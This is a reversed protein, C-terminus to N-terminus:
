PNDPAPLEVLDHISRNPPQASPAPNARTWKALDSTIEPHATYVDDALVHQVWERYQVEDFVAQIVENTYQFLTVMQYTTNLGTLLNIESAKATVSDGSEDEAIGKFQEKLTRKLLRLHDDGQSRPDVGEPWEEKLANITNNGSEIGM